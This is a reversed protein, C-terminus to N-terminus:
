QSSFFHSVSGIFKKQHGNISDKDKGKQEIEVAGIVKGGSVREGHYDRGKDPTPNPSNLSPTIRQIFPLPKGKLFCARRQNVGRKSRRM